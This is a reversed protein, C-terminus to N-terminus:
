LKGTRIAAHPTPQDHDRGSALDGCEVEIVEPQRALFPGAGQADRLELLLAQILPGPLVVPHGPRGEYTARAPRDGAADLVRGAVSAEVDPCDVLHVIVRDPRDALSELGARLSAGIGNAWRPCHVELAGDPLACRAAGTVVRVDTCWPRLAAVAGDLWGDVLIKPRGYRTGAGAALVLGTTVTM